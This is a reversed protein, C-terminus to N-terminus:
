KVAPAGELTKKEKYYQGVDNLKKLDGKVQFTTCPKKEKKGIEKTAFSSTGTVLVLGLLAAAPLLLRLFKM